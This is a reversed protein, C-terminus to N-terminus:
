FDYTISVTKKTENLATDKVIIEVNNKGSNLQIKLKFNGESDVVAVKGNITVNVGKDSKGTVDFDASDVTVSDQNPNSMTLEPPLIDFLVSVIKSVDSSGSDEKTAIASFNNEGESLNVDAFSFNGDTTVETKGISEDNKLLEVKSGSEAFGDIKIKSSSTAEFPIILRPALPPVINQSTTDKKSKTNGLLISFKILLPLGFIIISVFILVTLFGMFVTKKTIQEDNKRELRSRKFDPM